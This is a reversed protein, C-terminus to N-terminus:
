HPVTLANAPTHFFLDFPGEKKRVLYHGLEHALLAFLECDAASVVHINLAVGEPTVFGRLNDLNGSVNYPQLNVDQLVRTAVDFDVRFLSAYRQIVAPQLLRRKIQICRDNTDSILPSGCGGDWMQLNWFIEGVFTNFSFGGPEDQQMGCVVNFLGLWFRCTPDDKSVALEMQDLWGKKFTMETMGPQQARHVMNRLAADALSTCTDPSSPPTLHLTALENRTFDGHGENFSQRFAQM